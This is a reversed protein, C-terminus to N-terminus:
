VFASAPIEPLPNPAKGVMKNVFAIIQMGPVTISQGNSTSNFSSSGKARSYSGGLSFPGWGVSGGASFSSKEQQYAQALRRLM